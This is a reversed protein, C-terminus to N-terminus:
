PRWYYEYEVSVTKSEGPNLSVNWTTQSHTNLRYDWRYGGWDEPRFPKVVCKGDDTVSLAKGGTDVRIRMTAPEARNNTLTASGKVHILTYANGNFETSRRSIEEEEFKGRIDVAITLPLLTKGGIPTYTLLEQAIPVAKKGGMVLAAGTTWPTKGGSTLELQHWVENATLDLPSDRDSPPQWPRSFGASRASQYYTRNQQIDRVVNIDFTYLHTHKADETWLPLTARDGKGLTMSPVSYVFMDQEGTMGLQASPDSTNAGGSEDRQRWEGSRQSFMANSLVNSQGMISPAAAALTDRLTRELSLPSIIDKFRFNPVGVVLDVPVNEFDELENLIEGQLSLKATDGSEPLGLRYTPIWRVGSTFYMLTVAVPQTSAGVDITLRKRLDLTRSPREIETVLVPGSVTRVDAVPLVMLADVSRRIAIFQGGDPLVPMTAHLAAGADPAGVADSELPLPQDKPPTELVKELKGSITRRPEGVLELEVNKGVNARLLDLTSTCAAMASESTTTRVWEARMGLPEGNDRTAWFCGLIAADPVVYTHVRGREDPQAVGRKIIMAHGDKYIIVRSTTLTLEGPAPTREQSATPTTSPAPPAAFLIPSGAACGLVIATAALHAHIRM